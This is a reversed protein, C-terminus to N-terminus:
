NKKTSLYEEVKKMTEANPIKERMKPLLLDGKTIYQFHKSDNDCIWRKLNKNDFHYEGGCKCRIIGDAAFPQDIDRKYDGNICKWYEGAKGGCLLMEKGCIPCRLEEKKEAAYQLKGINYIKEYAATIDPDSHRHMVEGTEGNFSLINLSGAWVIQDDFIALKEHMDKKHIIQVGVTQLKEECKVYLPREKVGREEMSKTVVLISKGLVIADQFYPLLISIRNITMFPSYIILRQSFSQLDRFFHSFFESGMCVLNNANASANISVSAEPITLLNPYIKKADTM